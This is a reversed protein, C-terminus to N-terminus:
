HLRWAVPAVDGSSNSLRRYALVVEFSPIHGNTAIRRYFPAWLSEATLFRIAAETGPVDAGSVIMVKGSQAPNPLLAVTAYGQVPNTKAPDGLVYETPEGQQPHLNRILNKRAVPDADMVFNITQQFVEVWPNSLGFGILITNSNNLDRIRFDRATVINLMGPDSMGLATIRRVMEVDSLTTLQSSTVGQVFSKFDPALNLSELRNLFLRDGLEPFHIRRGTANALMVIGPDSLVVQTTRGPALVESWLGAVAPAQKLSRNQWPAGRFWEVAAIGIAALLLACLAGVVWARRGAPEGVPSLPAAAVEELRPQWMPLYRGRPITLILPDSRGETEYYRELKKRLQAVQVRVITDHGTDYDPRRGYVERGIDQERIPGDPSEAARKLLYALLERLRGSRRLGESDLIRQAPESTSSQGAVKEMRTIMTCVAPQGIQRAEVDGHFTFTILPSFRLFRSFIKVDQPVRHLSSSIWSTEFHM